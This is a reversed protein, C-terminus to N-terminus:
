VPFIVQEIDIDPGFLLYIYNGPGFLLYIYINPGVLFYIFYVTWKSRAKEKALLLTSKFEERETVLVHGPSLTHLYRIDIDNELFDKM